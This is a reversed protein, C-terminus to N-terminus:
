APPFIATPSPARLLHIMATSLVTVQSGGSVALDLDGDRDFDAATLDAITGLGTISLEPRLAFTGDGAGALFTLTGDTHGVALDPALNDIFDGVIVAVPESAGSAYRAPAPLTGDGAGLFVLVEDAGPAVTAVETFFDVNLISADLRVTGNGAPALTGPAGPTITQNVTFGGAGDGLLISLSNPGQLLLDQFGDHDVPALKMGVLPGLGPNTNTVLDWTIDGGNLAVTLTGDASVSALDFTTNTDIPGLEAALPGNGTAIPQDPDAGLTLM